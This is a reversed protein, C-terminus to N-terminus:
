LESRIEDLKSQLQEVKAKLEVNEQILKQCCPSTCFREKVDGSVYAVYACGHKSFLKEDAVCKYLNKPM